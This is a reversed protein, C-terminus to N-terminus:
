PPPFASITLFRLSLPHRVLVRELSHSGGPAPVGAITRGQMKQEETIIGVLQVDPYPEVLRVAGAVSGEDAILLTRYVRENGDHGATYTLRSLIRVSGAFLVFVNLEIVAVSLPLAQVSFGFSHFLRFALLGFTLVSSKLALELGDALYFHRWTCSYNKMALLMLPRVLAIIPIWFLLEPFWYSTRFEFRILFAVILAAGAAVGDLILQVKLDFVWQPLRDFLRGIFRNVPQINHFGM